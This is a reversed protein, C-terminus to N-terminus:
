SAERRRRYVPNGAAGEPSVREYGSLREEPRRALHRLPQPAYLGRELLDKAVSAGTAVTVDDGIVVNPNIVCGSGVYVNDGIRVPGVVKARTRRDSMHVFGHTWVQSNMGALISNEGIVITDDADLYHGLAVAAGRKLVICSFTADGRAKVFRNWKGASAGDRFCLSFRGRVINFSRLFAERRMLVRRCLIVNFHGIWAGDQLHIRDAFVLSFGIRAGKGIQHGLANLLVRQLLRPALLAVLCSLVRVAMRM